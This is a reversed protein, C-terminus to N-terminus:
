TADWNHLTVEGGELLHKIVLANVAEDSNFSDAANYLVPLRLALSATLIVALWVAATRSTLRLANM